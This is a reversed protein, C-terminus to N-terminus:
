KFFALVEKSSEPMSFVIVTDNAKLEFSGLTIYGKSNRIVGSIIAYEPFNLEKITKNIFRSNKQIVFEQIEADIGYLQTLVRGKLIHRFVFNAAAMKKNILTDVGMKQSYDFLGINEVMAITKKVGHDKALL